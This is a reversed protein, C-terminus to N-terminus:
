KVMPDSSKMLADPVGVRGLSVGSKQFAAAWKFDESFLISESEGDQNVVPMYGMKMTVVDIFCEHSTYFRVYRPSLWTFNDLEAFRRDDPDFTFVRSTGRALDIVEVSEKPHLVLKMHHDPSVMPNSLTEAGIEAVSANGTVPDVLWLKRAIGTKSVNDQEVIARLDAGEGRWGKLICNNVTAKVITGDRVDVLQMEISRQRDLVTGSLRQVAMYRSDPSLAKEGGSLSVVQGWSGKLERRVHASRDLWWFRVSDNPGLTFADKGIREEVLITNADADGCIVRSVFGDFQGLAIRQAPDDLSVAEVVSPSTHGYLILLKGGRAFAISCRESNPIARLNMIKPCEDTFNPDNQATKVPRPGDRMAAALGALVDANYESDKESFVADGAELDYNFYV